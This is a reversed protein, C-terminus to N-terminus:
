SVSAIYEEATMCSDLESPDSMKIKLIWGDGYADQNILESTDDLKENVAEISGSLPLFVDAVTKVAEITAAVDGKEFEDGVDPLEVFVVDGLEGQAYDTIGITASDGEIRIWEHDSTYKFEAPVNM